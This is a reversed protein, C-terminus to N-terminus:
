IEELSRSQHEQLELKIFTKIDELDTFYRSKTGTLLRAIAYVLLQPLPFDQAQIVRENIIIPSRLPIKNPNERCFNLEIDLYTIAKNLNLEYTDKNQGRILYKFVNALNSNNRLSSHNILDIAQYITGNIEILYYSPKTKDM